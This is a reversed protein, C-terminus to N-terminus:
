KRENLLRHSPIQRVVNAEALNKGSVVLAPRRRRARVPLEPGGANRMIVPVLDISFEAQRVRVEFGIGCELCQAISAKGFAGFGNIDTGEIWSVPQLQLLLVASGQEFDDCQGPPCAGAYYAIGRAHRCMARVFQRQPRSFLYARPRQFVGPEIRSIRARDCQAVRYSHPRIVFEFSVHLADADVMGRRM